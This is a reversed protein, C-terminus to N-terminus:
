KTKKVREEEEEEEKEEERGGGRGGRGVGGGGQKRKITHVSNSHFNRRSSDTEVRELNRTGGIVKKSNSLSSLRM